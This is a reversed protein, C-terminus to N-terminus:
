KSPTYPTLKSESQRIKEDLDYRQKMLSNIEAIIAVSEPTVPYVSIFGGSGYNKGIKKRSGDVRAWVETKDENTGTVEVEHWESPNYGTKYFAKFKAFPEKKEADLIKDIREKATSLKESGRTFHECTWTDCDYTLIVGRHTHTITSM